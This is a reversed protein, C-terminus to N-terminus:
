RSASILTFMMSWHTACPTGNARSYPPTSAVAREAARLHRAGEVRAALRALLQQQASGPAPAASRRPRTFINARCSISSTITTSPV